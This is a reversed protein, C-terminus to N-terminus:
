RTGSDGKGKIDEKGLRSRLTKETVPLLERKELERDERTAFIKNLTPM